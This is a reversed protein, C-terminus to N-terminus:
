QIGKAALEARMQIFFEMDPALRVRQEGEETEGPSGERSTKHKINWALRNTKPDVIFTLQRNFAKRLLRLLGRGLTNDPLYAYFVMDCSPKGQNPHHMKLMKAPFNYTIVITPCQFGPLYRCSMDHSMTGRPMLDESLGESKRLEGLVPQLCNAEYFSIYSQNELEALERTYRDSSSHKEINRLRDELERKQSLIDTQSGHQQINHVYTTLTEAQGLDFEISQNTAEVQKMMDAFTQNVKNILKEEEDRISTVVKDTHARIQTFIHAQQIKVDAAVKKSDDNIKQLSIVTNELKETLTQIAPTCKKLADELSLLGHKDGKHCTVACRMCVTEQCLDCFFELQSQSHKSCFRPVLASQNRDEIFKAYEESTIFRHNQLMRLKEHSQRCVSCFFQACDMCWFLANNDCLTCSMKDKNSGQVGVKDFLELMDNIFLNNKLGQAGTKPLPCSERCIPCTLEGNNKKIWESLCVECFTHVCPLIKPNEMREQCISCLLIRRDIDSIIKHPFIDGSSAM